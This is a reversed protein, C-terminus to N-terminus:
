AGPGTLCPRKTHQTSLPENFRAFCSSSWLLPCGQPLQHSTSASWRTGSSGPQGSAAQGVTTHCSANRVGKFILLIISLSKLSMIQAINFRSLTAPQLHDWIAPRALCHDCVESRVAPSIVHSFLPSRLLLEGPAPHAAEMLEEIRSQLHNREAPTRAKLM